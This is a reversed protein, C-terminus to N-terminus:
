AAVVVPTAASRARVFPREFVQAFLWSSLLSLPVGAAFMWAMRTATDPFWGLLGLHVLALVPAHILYLSYAFHGLGQIPRSELFALLWGRATSLSERACVVVLVAAMTGSVADKIVQSISGARDTFLAIRYLAFEMLLLLLARKYHPLTSSSPSQVIGAAVMGTAFLGLYWPSANAILLEPGAWVWIGFGFAGVLLAARGGYRLLMVLLPFTLYIQWETAITWLPYDIRVLWADRANHVLFLHSLLVSRDFAPGTMDWRLGRGQRNGSVLMGPVWRDLALSLAIAGYYAPLIRKARRGMFRLFGGEIKLGPHRLVPLALCFGSLVIFGDVAYRELLFLWSWDRFGQPVGGAEFSFLFEAAAHHIVVYLAALGRLGDLFALKTRPAPATDM